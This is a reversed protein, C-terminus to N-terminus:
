TPAWQGLSTMPPRRTPTAHVERLRDSPLSEFGTNAVVRPPEFHRGVHEIVGVRPEAVQNFPGVAVMMGPAQMAQSPIACEASVARSPSAARPGRFAVM